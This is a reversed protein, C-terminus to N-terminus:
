ALGNTSSEHQGYSYQDTLEDQGNVHDFISISIFTHIPQNDHGSINRHFCRHMMRYSFNVLFLRLINKEKSISGIPRFFYAISVPSIHGLSHHWFSFCRFFFISFFSSQLNISQHFDLSEEICSVLQINQLPNPM